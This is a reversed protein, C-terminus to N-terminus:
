YLENIFSTIDKETSIVDDTEHDWFVVKNLELDYCIYNGFPDIGFPIINSKKICDLASYVSDVDTDDKNFSLIAGLVKETNGLMFNYKSPTAANTEKIFEIFENPIIVKRQKAIEDFVADNVIDIKYKWTIDM